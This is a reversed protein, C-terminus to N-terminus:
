KESDKKLKFSDEVVGLDSVHSLYYGDEDNFVVHGIPISLVELACTKSEHIYTHWGSKPNSGERESQYDRAKSMKM